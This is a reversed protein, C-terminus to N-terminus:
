PRRTIRQDRLIRPHTHPSNAAVELLIERAYRPLPPAQHRKESRRYPIQSCSWPRPEERVDRRCQLGTLHQQQSRIQDLVRLPQYAGVVVARTHGGGEVSVHQRHDVAFQVGIKIQISEIM